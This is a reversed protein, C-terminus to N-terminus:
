EIRTGRHEHPHASGGSVGLGGVQHGPGQHRGPGVGPDGRSSSRISRIATGWPLQDYGSGARSTAPPTPADPARVWRYSSPM